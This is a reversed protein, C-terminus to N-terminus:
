NSSADSQNGNSSLQQQQRKLLELRQVLLDTKNKFADDPRADDRYADQQRQLLFMERQVESMQSMIEASTLSKPEASSSREGVVDGSPPESLEASRKVQKREKARRNQFWIKIQRQSLNLSTSLQM